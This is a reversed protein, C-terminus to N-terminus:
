PSVPQDEDDTAIFFVAVVAILGVLYWPLVFGSMQEGGAESGARESVPASSAAATSATILLSAAALCALPKRNM